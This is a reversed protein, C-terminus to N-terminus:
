NLYGVHQIYTKCLRCPCNRPVWNKIKMKFEDLSNANKYEAPLADWLKPGIHTPTEIGYSITRPIKANFKDKRLPYATKTFSFVDNMIAPAIGTKVKYVETVLKQLNKQHITLSQDQNLLEEFSSTYDKYVIRLAREHLRNIRNNLKRSHFMWVVPCYSFHSTIFANMILKRQDFTVTSALRSLVNIKKSAQKCLSEVHEEFNLKSDIKVGLLKECNSSSVIANGIRIQTKNCGTSLLHYKNPNAKMSNDKFWDLLVVSIKELNSLVQEEKQGTEFPTTDDAYSAVDTNELFLFIDCLFINFLLPGLISGQPVGFLIDAWSSYVNNIKVRQHRNSLYSELLKLSQYDCGYAHLKAILLDHPLCDFAKSLDTLLAACFGNNDLCNRWKEIMALLCQQASFSKRFGCQYKSLIPDFYNNIQTYICREYIKSINALISVPRYNEKDNRYGKKFIPKVDALKLQDPFVAKEIM